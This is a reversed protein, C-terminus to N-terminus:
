ARPRGALLPAVLKRLKETPKLGFRAALEREFVRYVQLAQEANGRELHIAVMVLVTSEHLPDSDWAEQLLALARCPAGESALRRAGDDLAGLLRGPMGARAREAWADDWRPLLTLTLLEYRADGPLPQAPDSLRAALKEAERVDVRVGPHLRLVDGVAEVLPLRAARVHALAKRLSAEASEAELHPTLERAAADRRLGRPRLALLAVLRRADRPLERPDGDSTLAFGGLLAVEIRPGERAGGATRRARRRAAAAAGEEPM